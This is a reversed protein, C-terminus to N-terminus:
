LIYARYCVNEKAWVKEEDTLDADDIMKDWTYMEFQADLAKGVQNLIHEKDM